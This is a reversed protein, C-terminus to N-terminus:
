LAVALLLTATGFVFLIIDNSVDDSPKGFLNYWNLLGGAIFLIINLRPNQYAGGFHRIVTENQM